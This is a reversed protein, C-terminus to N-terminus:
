PLLEALEELEKRDGAREAKEKMRKGDAVAEEVTKGIPPLYSFMDVDEYAPSNGSVKLILNILERHRREQQREVSERWPQGLRGSLLRAKLVALTKEPIDGITSLTFGCEM